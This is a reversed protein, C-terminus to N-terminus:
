RPAYIGNTQAQWIYHCTWIHKPVLPQTKKGLSALHDQFVKRADLYEAMASYFRAEDSKYVKKWAM